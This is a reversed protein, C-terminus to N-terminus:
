IFQTFKTLFEDKWINQNSNWLRQFHLDMCYTVAYDDASRVSRGAGQVGKMITILSYLDNHHELIFKMRKDGLSPFPAKVLIQYRSLDGALDIGEFMAPSILIANNGKYTKFENLISELKQGQEHVFLKVHKTLPILEAIIEKQLKFSPTLIIGREEYEIHKKVIKTVNKRLTKVTEPNQLSTFNLSMPAFFIFEKHEKPFTPPLTIFETKAPDLHLTKVMMENTVTASMFLNHDACQLADIMQGVFVPKVSISNDEEKHEFVHEYNYNFLDDIKCAMGEYKKTFRIMKSYKSMQNSRLAREAEVTGQEKAYTYIAHLSRLYTEYNTENIKGKKACDASVQKLMKAIELDTLRINDALDQSIAQLRKQSFYIANHESFLDNVLHAEDWIILDRQEFKGTYMRDVFFYSYNTTLHKIVNKLKKTKLYECKDCHRSIIDGFEGSNQVMTFWACAEANEEQEASLASCKYNSAGKIMLYKNGGSLKEFTTAYQKSLVNTATLSISSKLSADVKHKIASLADATVAGILSKGTGTPANLIVNQKKDQIFATLIKDVAEVQGPRPKFGLRDFAALIEKEYNM